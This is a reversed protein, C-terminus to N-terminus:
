SLLTNIIDRVREFTNGDQFGTTKNLHQERTKLRQEENYISGRLAEYDSLSEISTVYESHFPLKEIFVKHPDIVLVTINMAVAHDIASTYHVLAIDQDMLATEVFRDKIQYVRDGRTKMLSAYNSIHDRPHVKIGLQISEDSELIKSILLLSDDLVKADFYTRLPQTLYIFRKFAKKHGVVSRDAFHEFSKDLNQNGVIRYNVKHRIQKPIFEKSWVGHVTNLNFSWYRKNLPRVPSKKLFNHIMSKFSIQWSSEMINSKFYGVQQIYFKLNPHHKRICRYSFNLSTFGFILDPKMQDIVQIIWKEKEKFAENPFSRNFACTEFRQLLEMDPDIPNVLDLRDPDMLFHSYSPLLSPIEELWPLTLYDENAIFVIRTTSTTM